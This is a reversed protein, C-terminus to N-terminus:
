ETRHAGGGDIPQGPQGNTERGARARETLPERADNPVYM